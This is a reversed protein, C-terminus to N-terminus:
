KLLLALLLLRMVFYMGLRWLGRICSRRWTNALTACALFCPGWRGRTNTGTASTTASIVRSCGLAPRWLRRIVELSQVQHCVPYGRDDQAPAPQLMDGDAVKALTKLHAAYFLTTPGLSNSSTAVGASTICAPPIRGRGIRPERYIAKRM